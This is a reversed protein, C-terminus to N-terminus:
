KKAEQEKIYQEVDFDGQDTALDICLAVCWCFHTELYGAFTNSWRSNHGWSWFDEAKEESMEFFEPADQEAKDLVVRIWVILNPLSGEHEAKGDTNYFHEVAQKLNPFQELEKLLNEYKLIM